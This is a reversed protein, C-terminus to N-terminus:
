AAKGKKLPLGKTLRYALAHEMESMLMAQKRRLEELQLIGDQTSSFAKLEEASPIIVTTQLIFKTDLGMLGNDRRWQNKFVLFYARFLSWYNAPTTDNPRFVYSGVPALTPPTPAEKVYSFTSGDHSIIVDGTRIVPGGIDSDFRGTKVPSLNGIVESDKGVFPGPKFLRRADKSGSALRSRGLYNYLTKLPVEKSPM